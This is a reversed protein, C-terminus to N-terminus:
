QQAKNLMCVLKPLPPAHENCPTIAKLWLLLWAGFHVRPPSALFESM